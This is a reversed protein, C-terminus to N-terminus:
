PAGLLKARRRLGQRHLRLYRLARRRRERARASGLLAAPTLLLYRLAPGALSALATARAAAPGRRRAIWAYTAAVHRQARGADGFAQVAAASLAHGVRAAPEYRTAFGSRSLRWAIDIDEAYMWQASDFRGIAEFAERRLLLLAGHAWDVNRAREPDWRGEVCLRDGLGPSLRPLGLGTCLALSATPFRHVSHQTSGDDLLLRPAVSGLSPDRRGAALLAALAGPRLEVDANAAAIWEGATREAVLNVAPGFGLNRGPEALTAWPYHDRVLQPSGDESGNDVVWVDATGAEADDRLSDLCRALLDRTNWSVVAVAIPAAGEAAEAGGRAPQVASAM